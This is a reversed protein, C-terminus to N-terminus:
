TKFYLDDMSRIRETSEFGDMVPMQLDMLVLEFSKCCIKAIAEAGNNAVTVGIGWKQLLKCAVFQNLKDDEVLLINAKKNNMNDINLLVFISTSHIPFM